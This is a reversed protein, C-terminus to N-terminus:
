ESKLAEVPNLRATKFSQFGVTVWSILIALVGTLLFTWVDIPTKYAFDSLWSNVFSYSIPAAIFLSIVVLRTFESSFLTVLNFTNAGLVKRIGIEKTRQEASFAALGFLGLSAIIIAMVTFFNLIRGMRQEIRFSYEFRQDMFSYEFPFAPDLQSLETQINDILNQMGDVSNGLQSNLRISLFSPSTGSDPLLPNHIHYIILPMVEQKINNYHFNDVVGIILFKSNGRTVFKGIPSNEEFDSPLGYGLAQAAAANIIISSQKDSAMGKDFNRGILWKPNLLQLYDEDVKMRKVEINDTTGEAQVIDGRQISPPVEHSQGIVQVMTNRSLSNKIADVQSGLREINHLQIVHERDYGLDFNTTYDLQKHVFFTSIILAVSATFQFVVLVNRISKGKVGSSLQGKLVDVPKFSSLYLAPYTGALLGLILVFGVVISMFKVDTLYVYLSLEKQALDNFTSLFVESLVIGILTSIIVYLFSEFVFQKVLSRRHSGLVKRIGVEKARSSSRATSLNMFNICSLILIIFGVTSFITIYKISGVPGLQNGVQANLYISQLPQLYLNWSKGDAELEDFTQGFVRQLTSVAWKRPIENLKIELSEIDVDNKLLGYNAFATWVWASEGAKIDPYSSMSTLMDFKIHSNSPIDALVATVEFPEWQEPKANAGELITGKLHLTKGLPNADGFYKIAMSESIVVKYPKSLATAANGQLLEFSFIDFFNEEVALLNDQLFSNTGNSADKNSVAFPEIALVKTVQEFEPIESRLAIAVNPGTASMQKDWDGWIFSQNIRYIRDSNEHFNDYSLEDQVYLGIMLCTTIGISLGLINLLSFQKHRISTRWATKFMNKLM